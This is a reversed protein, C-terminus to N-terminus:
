GQGQGKEKEQMGLEDDDAVPGGGGGAADASDPRQGKGLWDGEWLDRRSGLFLLGGALMCLYALVIAAFSPLCFAVPLRSLPVAGHRLERVRQVRRTRSCVPVHEGETVEPPQHVSSAAPAPAVTAAHTRAPIAVQEEEEDSGKGSDMGWDARKSEPSENDRSAGQSGEDSGRDSGGSGRRDM